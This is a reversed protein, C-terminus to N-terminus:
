TEIKNSSFALFIIFFVMDFAQGNTILEDVLDEKKHYFLSKFSFINKKFAKEM